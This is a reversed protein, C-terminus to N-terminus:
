FINGAMPKVVAVVGLKYLLKYFDAMAVGLSSSYLNLFDTGSQIALGSKMM